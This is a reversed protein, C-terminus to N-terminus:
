VRLKEKVNTVHPCEETGVKNRKNVAGGARWRVYWLTLHLILRLNMIGIDRSLLLVNQVLWIKDCLFPVMASKVNEHSYSWTCTVMYELVLMSHNKLHVQQRWWWQLHTLETQLLCHMFSAFHFRLLATEWLIFVLVTFSVAPFTM